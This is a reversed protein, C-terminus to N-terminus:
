KAPVCLYRGIWHEHSTDVCFVFREAQCASSVNTKKAFRVPTVRKIRDLNTPHNAAVFAAKPTLPLVWVAGPHDYARLRILPRDALVLSGDHPGLRVVHWCANILKGGIKPNDVLKQIAILARDELSVGSNREFFPSPAETLGEHAMAAIIEPDNDLGEAFQRGGDRLMNVNSPRRADLSLLLRAFDCRQDGSLGEPGDALLRDRAKAGKTDIDGFFITELADRGLKHARLTLLDLQQCFAKPGRRKCVLEGRRNDWWYGRLMDEVLWPRLLFQPVFHHKHAEENVM